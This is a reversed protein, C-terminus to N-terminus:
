VARCRRTAARTCNTSFIATRAPEARGGAPVRVPEAFRGPQQRVPEARAVEYVDTANHLGITYTYLETVFYPAGFPPFSPGPGRNTRSIGTPLRTVLSIERAAYESLSQTIQQMNAKTKTEQAKNLYQPIAVATMGALVAIIAIVTLLEILTFGANSAWHAMRGRNSNKM